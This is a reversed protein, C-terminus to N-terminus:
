AAGRKQISSSRDGCIPAVVHPPPFRNFMLHLFSWNTAATAFGLKMQRFTM